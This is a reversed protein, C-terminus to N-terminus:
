DLEARVRQGPTIVRTDPLLVLDGEALGSRVESSGEGRIGLRIERRAARGGEAVLVWPSSTAGGHVTRSEVTLAKAKSAVALDVSVTMDPKLARPANPARLRVEVSGREPDISPAIYVVESDFPQEPYADAAVRAHQGLAIWALNREDPQIVIQQDGAAALVLLTRAPQVVDGPEVSRTLVVGDYLATMRTQALRIKAGTLQAQAQLLSTLAVRSDAGLPTSAVQQAEAATRQARALDVARQSNELEVAPIAGSAALREARELDAEARAFNTEAQALAGSAVITGVRRLQEVRANAQDVVAKAQAVAARAESDDIQVLLDGAKVHQGEVAAVAVVLGPVQASVQLRTPVWVRGSAVVRQEIDRRLPHVVRVVPGRASLVAAIASGLL